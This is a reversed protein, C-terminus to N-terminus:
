IYIFAFIKLLYPLHRLKQKIEELKEIIKKHETIEVLDSRYKKIEPLNRFYNSYHRRMELVGLKEGKWKVSLNLHILVM